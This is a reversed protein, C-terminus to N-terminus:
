CVGLKGCVKAEANNNNKNNNNDNSNIEQAGIIADHVSEIDDEIMRCVQTYDEGGDARTTCYQSFGDRVAAPVKSSPSSTSPPSAPSSTTPPIATTTTREDNDDDNNNDNNNMTINAFTVKLDGMCKKCFMCKPSFPKWSLKLGPFLTGFPSASSPGPLVGKLSEFTKEVMKRMEESKKMNNNNNKDCYGTVNCVDPMVASSPTIEKTTNQIRNLVGDCSSDNPFISCLTKLAQTLKSSTKEIQQYSKSLGSQFQKCRLCSDPQKTEFIPQNKFCRCGGDNSHSTIDNVEEFLKNFMTYLNDCKKLIQNKECFRRLETQAINWSQKLQEAKDEQTAKM